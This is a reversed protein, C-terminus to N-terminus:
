GTHINYSGRTGKAALCAKGETGAFVAVSRLHLYCSPEDVSGVTRPHASSLVTAVQMLRIYMRDDLALRSAKAIRCMVWRQMM